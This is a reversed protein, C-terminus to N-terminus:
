RRRQRKTEEVILAISDARACTHQAAQDLYQHTARPRRDCIRHRESGQQERGSKGTLVFIKLGLIQCPVLVQMKFHLGPESRDKFPNPLTINGACIIRLTASRGSVDQKAIIEYRCCIMPFCSMECNGAEYGCCTITCFAVFRM